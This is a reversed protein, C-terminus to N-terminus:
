CCRSSPAMPTLRYSLTRHQGLLELILHPSAAVGKSSHFHCRTINSAMGASILGGWPLGV